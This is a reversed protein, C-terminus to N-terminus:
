SGLLEGIPKFKDIRDCVAKVAMLIPVGLLLGGLGWLWGWALVGVFVTIANIRSTRSTLWPTLVYGSLAHLALSVGAILAASELSGFQTLGVTASAATFLVSGIYPVFNLIGAVFGWVAAHQVGIWLFCLWTAIAVLVSTLVQVLLYRQIQETIEDLAQITLKKKSLTPGAIRVLKRRFNNGSSLLFFTLFLVVTAQSALAALGLAGTWFYDQINFKAREIQVRTVNRTGSVPRGANAEATRELESAAQQVKDMTTASKTGTGEPSRMTQRFKQAVEPLSAILETADDSLRYATWGLGGVISLLLFASALVRPIRLRELRDVVPTLAYSSMLGLLVPIFVAKAWYLTYLCALTALIALSASRIDVPM